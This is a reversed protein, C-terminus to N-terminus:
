LNQIIRKTILREDVEQIYHYYFTQIKTQDDYEIKTNLLGKAVLVPLQANVSDIESPTPYINEEEKTVDSPKELTDFGTPKTLASNEMKKMLALVKVINDQNGYNSSLEPNFRSIADCYVINYRELHEMVKNYEEDNEIFRYGNYKSDLCDTIQRLMAYQIEEMDKISSTTYLQKETTDIIKIISESPSINTCSSFALIM